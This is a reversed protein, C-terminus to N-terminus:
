KGDLRLHEYGNRKAWLALALYTGKRASVLRTLVSIQRNPHRRFVADVIQAASQKEVPVNCDPCYQTGLTLFLMRLDTHIETATAVTSKWGGQSLRQETAVTPPLHLIKRVDPKAQPQIFQRAYANVCELFRAQGTSFLIDFALTSKGSGSVGTVVSLAHLPIKVDINRLNHERAGQILIFSTEDDCAEANRRASKGAPKKKQIPPMSPRRTPFPSPASPTQTM